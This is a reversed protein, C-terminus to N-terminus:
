WGAPFNHVVQELSGNVVLEEGAAACVFICACLGLITAVARRRSRLPWGARAAPPDGTM